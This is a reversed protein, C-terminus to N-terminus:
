ERNWKWEVKRALKWEVKWAVGAGCKGHWVRGWEVRSKMKWEGCEMRKGSEVASEVGGNEVKSEM